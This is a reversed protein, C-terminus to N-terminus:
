ARARRGIAVAALAGALATMVVLAGIAALVSAANLSPQWLLNRLLTFAPGSPVLSASREALAGPLLPLAILPVSVMFTVLLAARGDRALSGILCGLAGCAAGFLILVPPWLWWHGVEVLGGLALGGLVVLGALAVLVAVLAVKAVVIVPAPALGRTLRQLVNDDQESAIGAAGLLLAALGLIVLLAAALGFTTLLRQGGTSHGSDTEARLEIPARIVGAAPGALDLNAKTQDIFHILPELRRATPADGKARLDHQIDRVRERSAVLGLADASRGFLGLRGGNIVIDVLGMVQDVYGRALAQNLRFVEARLRRELAEATFPSRTGTTLTVTPARLGSQLDAVFGRPITVIGDIRGQALADTAARPDLPILHADAGIRAIYDDVSLREEGVQVTRGAVDLNVIALRPTRDGAQFATVALASVLLPYLVLMALLGRSRVLLRLDKVLLLRLASM